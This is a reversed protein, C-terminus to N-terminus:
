WDYLIEWHDQFSPDKQTYYYSLIKGKGEKINKGRELISSFHGPLRIHKFLYDAGLGFIIILALGFAM